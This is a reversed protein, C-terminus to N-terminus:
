KDQSWPPYYSSPEMSYAKPTLDLHYQVYDLYCSTSLHQQVKEIIFGLEPRLSINLGPPRITPLEQSEQSSTLLRAERDCLVNNKVVPPLNDIDSNNDQHSKIWNFYVTHGFSELRHSLHFRPAFYKRDISSANLTLTPLNAFCVASENDLTFRFHFNGMDSPIESLLDLFHTIGDLEARYSDFTPGPVMRSVITPNRPEGFWTASAMSGDLASGDSGAELFGERIADMLRQAARKMSSKRPIIEDTMCNVQPVADLVLYKGVKHLADVQYAIDDELFLRHVLEVPKNDVTRGNKIVVCATSSRLSPRIHKPFLSTMIQYFVEIERRSVKRHPWSLSSKRQVYSTDHIPLLHMGTLSFTDSEHLFKFSVRNYEPM